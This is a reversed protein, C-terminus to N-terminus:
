PPACQRLYTAQPQPRSQMVARLRPQQLVVPPLSGVKLFQPPAALAVDKMSLGTTLPTLLPPASRYNKLSDVSLAPLGAPPLGSSQRADAFFGGGALIAGVARITQSSTASATITALAEATLGRGQLAGLVAFVTAFPLPRAYRPDDDVLTAIPILASKGQLVAVGTIRLGTISRIRSAAAPLHAPDYWRWSAEPVLDFIEEVVFQNPHTVPPLFRVTHNSGVKLKDMPALDYVHTDSLTKFPLQIVAGQADFTGGASYGSVPMRSETLFAFEPNLRWPDAATGPTPQAGPPEPPLLGKVVRVSLWTNEPNGSVLYKDRFPEWLLPDPRPNPDGGFSLTISTVYADFTLDVHFPPGFIHVDAGKSITISIDACCGFFCVEITLSVGVQVGVQFDYHFPDWQILIDAHITFWARIGDFGGVSGITWRM